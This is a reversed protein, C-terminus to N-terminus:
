NEESGEAPPTSAVPEGSDPDLPLGTETHFIERLLRRWEAYQKEVSGTLRLTQGEVEVLMPEVEADFSQSLERLAELHMKAERGKAIGSQIVYSGGIIAVDRVAAGERDGEAAAVVGGVIALAGLIKRMRAQRRAKARALEEEYSFKRWSQYSDDMRAYFSVYHETLTDIFLYDRERIRDVRELMPDGAAPLRAVVTRGRRDVDLYDDFAAPVVGAAFRLETITRLGRLEDDDLKDRAALLDNAIENYLSQFPPYVIGDKSERYARPDARHKYRQDLWIRGAADVARVDLITRRGNSEVITGAVTVDVADTGAPVVRVAGWNGTTQLTDMLRVPLYRAEANRIASFVGEAELEYLAEDDDPLGPDFIRIGVDLLLEERIEGQAHIAEVYKFSKSAEAQLPVAAAVFGLVLGTALRKGDTTASM